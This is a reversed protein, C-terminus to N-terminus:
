LQGHEAFSHINSGAVIFHDLVQVDILALSRTLARTM